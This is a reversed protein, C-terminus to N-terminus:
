VFLYKQLASNLLQWIDAVEKRMETLDVVSCMGSNAARTLQNLNNGIANLEDQIGSLGPIVLIEKDLACDRLYPALTDYKIFAKDEILQKEEKTVRFNLIETRNNENINKNRRINFNRKKQSVSKKKFLFPLLPAPKGSAKNAAMQRAYYLASVRLYRVASSNTTINNLRSLIIFQM